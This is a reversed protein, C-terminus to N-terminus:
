FIGSSKGGPPNRIRISTQVHRTSLESAKEETMKEDTVKLNNEEVNNEETKNEGTDSEPMQSREGDIEIVIEEGTIPNRRVYKKKVSRQVSESGNEFINSKTKHNAKSPTSLDANSNGFLRDQTSNSQQKPKEGNTAYHAAGLGFIDSSGGGPPKLVKSSARSGDYGINFETSTM